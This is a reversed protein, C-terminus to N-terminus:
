PGPLLFGLAAAARLTHNVQFFDNRRALAFPFHRRERLSYVGVM